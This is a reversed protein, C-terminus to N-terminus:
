FDLKVRVLAEKTFDKLLPRSMQSTKMVSDQKIGRCRVCNHQSEIVVAVGRNGVCLRDIHDYISHKISRSM